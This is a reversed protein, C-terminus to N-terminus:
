VKRCVALGDRLPLITSVLQRSSYILRNFRQIGRTDPDSTKGTVRGSWLVNDTVFLGGRRLRPVALHFVQPYYHKDVDNFILDFTGGVKQILDLSNGVLIKIREAVRARRFYKRAREANAPDGDTYYVTAGSGAARALWITSYGIASGMEFIRRAQILQALLGLFRGVAPGVIPVDHSRAYAEMEALVRDRRPLLGYFYKEVRADTIGDM